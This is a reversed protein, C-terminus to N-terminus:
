KVMEFSVRTSHGDLLMLLPHQNHVPVYKLFITGSTLELYAPIAGPLRLYLEELIHHAAMLCTMVGANELSFLPPIAVGFASGNCIVTAKATKELLSLQHNSTWM